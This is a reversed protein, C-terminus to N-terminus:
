NIEKIIGSFRVSQRNNSLVTLDASGTPSIDISLLITNRVDKPKILVYFMGSKKAKFTYSFDTSTFKIGNDNSSNYGAGSYAVGIYPLDSILSDKAMRVDYGPSLYRQGSIPQGSFVPYNFSGQLPYIFNAQFTFKKSELLEKLAAIQADKKESSKIQAKVPKIALFAIFILLSIITSLPQAWQLAKM